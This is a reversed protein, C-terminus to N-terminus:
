FFVLNKNTKLGWAMTWIFDVSTKKSLLDSCAKKMACDKGRFGEMAEQQMAFPILNGGPVAHDEMARATPCGLNMGMPCQTRAKRDKKRGLFTSPENEGTISLM